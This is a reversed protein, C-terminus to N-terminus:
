LSDTGSENAASVLEALPPCTWIEESTSTSQVGGLTRLGNTVFDRIANRGKACVIVSLDAVHGLLISVDLVAVRGVYKRSLTYKIYTGLQEQTCIKAAENEAKQGAKKPPGGLVEYPGGEGKSLSRQDVLVDIRYRRPYGIAVWDFVQLVRGVRNTEMLYAIRKGVTSEPIKTLGAILPYPAKPHQAIVEAIMRDRVDLRERKVPMTTGITYVYQFARAGTLFPM